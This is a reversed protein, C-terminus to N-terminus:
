RKSGTTRKANSRLCGNSFSVDDISLSSHEVGLKGSFVFQFPSSTKYYVRQKVWQSLPQDTHFLTGSDEINGDAYQVWVKLSNSNANNYYFFRMTCGDQATMMPSYLKM